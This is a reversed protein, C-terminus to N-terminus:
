FTTRFTFRFMHKMVRQKYGYVHVSIKIRMQFYSDWNGRDAFIVSIKGHFKWHHQQLKLYLIIDICMVRPKVIDVSIDYKHIDHSGSIIPVFFLTINVVCYLRHWISHIIYVSLSYLLSISYSTCRFYRIHKTNHKYYQIQTLNNYKYKTYWVSKAVATIWFHGATKTALNNVITSSQM